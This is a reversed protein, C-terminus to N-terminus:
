EGEEAKIIKMAEKVTDARVIQTKTGDLETEIIKGNELDKLDKQSLFIIHRM